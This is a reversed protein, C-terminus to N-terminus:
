AEADLGTHPRHDHLYVEASMGRCEHRQMWAQIHRITM